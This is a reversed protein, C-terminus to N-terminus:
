MAKQNYFKKQMCMFIKKAFQETRVTLNHNPLHVDLSYKAGQANDWNHTAVINTAGQNISYQTTTTMHADDYTTMAKVNSQNIIDILAVKDPTLFIRQFINAM